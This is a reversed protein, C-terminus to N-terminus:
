VTISFTPKRSSGGILKIEIEVDLRNGALKIGRRNATASLVRPDAAAQDEMDNIYRDLVIVFPADARDVFGILGWSPNIPNLSGKENEFRAEVNQIVGDVGEITRIDGTRDIQIRGDLLEIDRGYLFRDIEKQTTGDFIPEFVLNTESRSFGGSVSVPIKITVGVKAGGVLDSDSLENASAIDTWRSYDGSYVKGSILQLTDGQQITYFSFSEQAEQVPNDFGQDAFEDSDLADLIGAGSPNVPVVARERADKVDILAVRFGAAILRLKKTDGYYHLMDFSAFEDLTRTGAEFDAFDDKPVILADIKSTIEDLISEYEDLIGSFARKIGFAGSTIKSLNLSLESRLSILKDNLSFLDLSGQMEIPLDIM